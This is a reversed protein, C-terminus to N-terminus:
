TAHARRDLRRNAEEDMRLWRMAAIAGSAVYITGGLVWMVAGAAQQDQLRTLGWVLTDDHAFWPTPAFVLLAALLGSAIMSIFLLVVGAGADTRRPRVIPAWFALASALMTVHELAHVADSRIATDYLVPLHWATFVITFVALGIGPLAPHHLTRRVRGQWRGLGRRLGAPLGWAMTQLPSSLAFLPAAVLTLLVHQFMHVSFLEDALPDVPSILAVVITSIALAFMTVQWGAVVQGRGASRWVTRTGKAYWWCSVVLALVVFPDAVWASWLDHLGTLEDGHALLVLGDGRAMLASMDAFVSITM